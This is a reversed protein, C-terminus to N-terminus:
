TWRSKITLFAKSNLTWSMHSKQHKIFNKCRSNPINTINSFIQKIDELKSYQYPFLAFLDFDFQRLLIEFIWLCFSMLSYNELLDVMNCVTYRKTFKGIKFTLRSCIQWSKANSISMSIFKQLYEFSNKPRRYIIDIM